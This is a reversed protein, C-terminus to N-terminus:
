GPSAWLDLSCWDVRLREPGPEPRSPAIIQSCRSCLGEGHPIAALPACQLVGSGKASVLRLLGFVNDSLSFDLLTTNAKTLHVPKGSACFGLCRVPRFVASLRALLLRLAPHQAVVM